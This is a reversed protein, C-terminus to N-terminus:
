ALRLDGDHNEIEEDLRVSARQWRGDATRLEARLELPGQGPQSLHVERASAAFNGDEKVWRFHGNDNTLVNNLSISSLRESGNVCRVSAILDFDKDLTINRASSSFDGKSGPVAAYGSVPQQHGHGPHSGYPVSPAQPTQPKNHHQKYAEELKHGTYAGGITGLFGHHMKHGAYGGALGGALAGMLGREEDTQLEGPNPPVAPASEGYQRAEESTKTYPDNPPPSYPPYSTDSPTYQNYQEGQEPPAYSPIPQGYVPDQQQPPYEQAYGAQSYDGQQQQAGYYTDNPGSYEQQSPDHYSESQSGSQEQM